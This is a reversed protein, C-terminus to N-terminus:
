AIGIGEIIRKRTKPDSIAEAAQIAEQPKSAKLANAIRGLVQDIWPGRAQLESKPMKKRLHCVTRWDSREEARVIETWGSPKSKQKRTFVNPQRFSAHLVEDM